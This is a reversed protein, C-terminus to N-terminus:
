GTWTAGGDSTRLVISGIFQGAMPDSGVSRNGAALGHTADAFAVDTLDLKTGSFRRQWTTGGDATALILGGDGVLWGHSADAFAMSNWDGARAAFRVKWAAGGDTTALVTNCDPRNPIASGLMWGCRDDAFVISWPTWSGASEQQEWAAGGDTTALIAGGTIEDHTEVM